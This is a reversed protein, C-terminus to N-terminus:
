THQSYKSKTAKDSKGDTDSITSSKPFPVRNYLNLNNNIANYGNINM